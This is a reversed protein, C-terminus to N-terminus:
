GAAASECDAGAYAEKRAGNLAGRMGTERMAVPVFLAPCELPALAYVEFFRYQTYPMGAVREPGESVIRIRRLSLQAPVEPSTMGIEVLEERLERRVCDTAMERDEKREFWSIFKGLNRRPVFGRLDGKMITDSAIDEGRFLMEELKPRAEEHYKYVGGIPGFAEPRRWNRILIMSGGDPIALIASISVRLEENPKRM